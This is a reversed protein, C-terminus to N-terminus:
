TPNPSTPLAASPLSAPAVTVAPAPAAAVVRVTAPSSGRDAVMLGLLLPLYVLSVLFLRRAAHLSRQSAMRWGFFVFALGLALSGALFFPGAFGSAWAGVGIPLLAFTHVLAIRGTLAGSPDIVPLMRFGGRRYDERHLWALALFHPIQWLFLIGALVMAGYGLGGAAATWGMVPPIAGCVAGVLTNLPSRAKMPTYVAVYLAIVLVSLAATLLNTGLALVAIGAVASVIGIWFAGRRTIRGSPLPRLATREMRRDREVELWQNLTNAGAASLAAGLLAWAFAFFGAGDHPALVFGVATTLLVMGSLRFKALELYLQIWGSRPADAFAGVTVLTESSEQM